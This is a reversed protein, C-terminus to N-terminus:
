LSYVIHQFNCKSAYGDVEEERGGEKGKRGKEMGRGDEEKGGSLLLGRLYLWPTQSFV